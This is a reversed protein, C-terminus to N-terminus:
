KTERGALYRLLWKRAITTKRLYALSREMKRKQDLLAGIEELFDRPQQLSPTEITMELAAFDLQTTETPSLPREGERRKEHQVSIPTCKPFANVSLRRHWDTTRELEEVKLSEAQRHSENVVPATGAGGAATRAAQSECRKWRSNARHRSGAPRGSLEDDSTPETKHQGERFVGDVLHTYRLTDSDLVDDHKAFFRPM